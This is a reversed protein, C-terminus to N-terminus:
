LMIPVLLSTWLSCTAMGALCVSATSVRASAFFLIWHLSILIGTGMIKVIEAFGLRFDRKRLILLVGLGAAAELTRWFVLEVSPISILLGLIATFGWLFVIFHLKLFDTTGSM